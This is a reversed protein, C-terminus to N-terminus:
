LSVLCLISAVTNLCRIKRETQRGNKPIVIHVIIQPSSETVFPNAMREGFTYDREMVVFVLVASVGTKQLLEKSVQCNADWMEEMDREVFDPRPTISATSMGAVGIEKGNTDFLAAKTTTGGNDLGIYYHM